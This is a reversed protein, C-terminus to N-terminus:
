TSAAFGCTQKRQGRLMKPHQLLAPFFEDCGEHVFFRCRTFERPLITQRLGVHVRRVCIIIIVIIVQEVVVVIGARIRRRIQNSSLLEERVGRNWNSMQCHHRADGSIAIPVLLDCWQSAPLVSSNGDDLFDGGGVGHSPTRTDVGNHHAVVDIKVAIAIRTTVPNLAIRHCRHTM